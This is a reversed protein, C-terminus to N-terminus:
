GLRRVYMLGQGTSSAGYKELMKMVDEHSTFTAWAQIGHHRLILELADLLKVGYGLHHFRRDIAMECIVAYPQGLLTQVFGAVDGNREVVLVLGTFDDYTLGDIALGNEQLLGRLAPLDEPRAPRIKM